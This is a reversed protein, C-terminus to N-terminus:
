ASFKVSKTGKNARKYATVLAEPSEKFGLPRLVAELLDPLSGQIEGSRHNNNYPLNAGTGFANGIIISKVGRLLTERAQKRKNGGHPAKRSKAEEEFKRIDDMLAVAPPYPLAKGDEDFEDAVEDFVDIVKNMKRRAKKWLKEENAASRSQNEVTSKLRALFYIFAMRDLDRKVDEGALSFPPLSNRSSPASKLVALVREIKETTYPSKTAM